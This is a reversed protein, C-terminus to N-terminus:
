CLGKKQWGASVCFFHLQDFTHNQGDWPLMWLQQFVINPDNQHCRGSKHGWIYDDVQCKLFGQIMQLFIFLSFAPNLTTHQPLPCVYSSSCILAAMFKTVNWKVVPGTAEHLSSVLTMRMVVARFCIFLGLKSFFLFSFCDSCSVM